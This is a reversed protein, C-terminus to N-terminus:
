STYFYLFEGLILYFGRRCNKQAQHPSIRVIAKEFRKDSWLVRYVFLSINRTKKNEDRKTYCYM